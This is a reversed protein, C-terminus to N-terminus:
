LLLNMKITRNYTNNYKNVREDLKDFYVNKSISNMCNCTKKKLAKIFGEAIVSKVESHTSYMEIDNNQLFLKISRNYFESGKNVQIKNPKLNSEDWTKKSFM